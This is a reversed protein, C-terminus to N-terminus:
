NEAVIRTALQWHNGWRDRVTARRDGYPQDTPPEVPSGGAEIARQFAADVNPVYVYLFAPAPDRVGGGDSILLLSDGIRLEVPRGPHVEGEAAVVRKLFAVLGAVDAVFIRPAVTPWGPPKFAASAM